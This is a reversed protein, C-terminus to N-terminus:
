PSEAAAAAANQEGISRPVSSLVPIAPKSDDGGLFRDLAKEFGPYSTAICESGEITTTGEAYLGAIAFAMAIRHDHFTEISAGQLQAGGQIEMGDEFELVSVGM